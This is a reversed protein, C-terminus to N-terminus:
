MGSDIGAIAYIYMEENNSSSDTDLQMSISNGTSTVTKLGEKMGVPVIIAPLNDESTLTLLNYVTLCPFRLLRIWLYILIYEQIPMEFIM